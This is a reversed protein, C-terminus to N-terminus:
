QRRKPEEKQPTEITTGGGTNFIDPIDLSEKEGMGSSKKQLEMGAEREEHERTSFLRKLTTRESPTTQAHQYHPFIEGGCRGGVRIAEPGEDQETAEREEKGEATKKTTRPAAATDFIVESVPKRL